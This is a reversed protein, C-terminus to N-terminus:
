HFLLYIMKAFIAIEIKELERLNLVRLEKNFSYLQFTSNEKIPHNSKVALM